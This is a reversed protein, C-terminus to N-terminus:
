NAEIYGSSFHLALNRNSHNVLAVEPSKKKKTQGEDLRAWEMCDNVLRSVASIKM